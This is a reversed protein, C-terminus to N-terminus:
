DCLFRNKIKAEEEPTFHLKEKFFNDLSGFNTELTSLAAEIFIEKALLSYKIKKAFKHSFKIILLGLYVFRAKVKTFKNSFLYDQIILERDVGLFSLILAALIGTRDKGVTCHFVVSYDEDPLTLITKLINVINELCEDTVMKVYMDEMPPMMKLSLMSHVKKEHSVGVLAENLIPMHFYKVGEFYTDPKEEAEKKTRLDIITAVKYEQKLKKIDAATVNFLTAGRILMKLKITKGDITKIGGIDRFNKGHKLKILEM